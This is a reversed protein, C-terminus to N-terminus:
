CASFCATMTLKQRIMHIIAAGKNYSLRYNFIRDEDGAFDDPVFVSGGPASKIYDHTRTLWSGAENPGILYQYALYEAYSAFGENIWIDQWNSCTIYDGFWQHALEHAVLLFSFNTLTTMTQHEMGGGLPALCHGYKEDKFPYTGFLDNYLLIMDGTKDIGSKNQELYSESYIYNQILLSDQSNKLHVYFSYDYYESVAFSILYYAIPHRSKWEYRIRDGPLLVESTILGNSGARLRKDTSLFVYVSDAKDTLSQKCPFWNLAHFPESLTWTINKDWTSNYRNYIGSIGTVNKGLGHYFVQVTTATGSAIQGPLDIKLENKEHIYDTKQQDVFVSDAHLLDAFDLVVQELPQGLAKLMITVNGTIYTSSDSVQLDLWYFTVDYNERDGAKMEAIDADKGVTTGISIIFLLMLGLAPLILKSM